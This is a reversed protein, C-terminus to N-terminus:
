GGNVAEPFSPSAQRQKHAICNERCPLVKPNLQISAIIEICFRFIEKKFAGSQIDRASPVYLWKGFARCSSEGSPYRSRPELVVGSPGFQRVLPRSFFFTQRFDSFTDIFFLVLFSFFVLISTTKSKNSNILNKNKYGYYIFASKVILLSLLLHLLLVDSWLMGCMSQHASFASTIWIHLYVGWVRSLLM